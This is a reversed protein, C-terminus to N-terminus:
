SRKIVYRKVVVSHASQQYPQENVQSVSSVVTSSLVTGIPQTYPLKPSNKSIVEATESDTFYDVPASSSSTTAYKINM